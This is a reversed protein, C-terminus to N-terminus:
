PCSRLWPPGGAARSAFPGQRLSQELQRDLGPPQADQCTASPPVRGGATAEAPLRNGQVAPLPRSTHHEHTPTTCNITTAVNSSTYNSPDLIIQLQTSPFPHAPHFQGTHRTAFHAVRISRPPNHYQDPQDLPTLPPVPNPLHQLFTNTIAPSLLTPQISSPRQSHAPTTKGGSLQRTGQPDFHPAQRKSARRLSDHGMSGRDLLDTSSRRGEAEGHQGILPRAGERQQATPLALVPGGHAVYIMARRVRDM